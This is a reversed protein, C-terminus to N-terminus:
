GVNHGYFISTVIGMMKFLFDMNAWVGVFTAYISLGPHGMSLVANSMYIAYISRSLKLRIDRLYSLFKNSPRLLIFINKTALM